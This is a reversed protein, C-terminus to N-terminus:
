SVKDSFLRTQSVLNSKIERSNPKSSARDRYHAERLDGKSIGNFTMFISRRPLASTNIRSLHPWFMDFVFVSGAPCPLPRWDLRQVEYDLLAGNPHRDLVKNKPHGWGLEMCGNEVTAEDLFITVNRHYPQFAYPSTDYAHVDQHAPYEGTGPYKYNIKEKFLVVQEGLLEEVIDFIGSARIFDRFATHYPLFNETRSIRPRNEIVEYYNLYKGDVVPWRAIEEVWAIMKSTDEQSFYSSLLLQNNLLWMEEQKASLPGTGKSATQEMHDTKMIYSPLGNKVTVFLKRTTHTTVANRNQFKRSDRGGVEAVVSRRHSLCLFCALM